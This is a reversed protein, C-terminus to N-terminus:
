VYITYICIYLTFMHLDVHLPRAFTFLKRLLYRYM